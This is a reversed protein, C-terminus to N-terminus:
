EPPRSHKGAPIITAVIERRELKCGAGTAAPSYVRRLLGPNPAWRPKPIAQRDHIRGIIENTYQAHDRMGPRGLCEAVLLVLLAPCAFCPLSRPNGPRLGIEGSSDDINRAKGLTNMADTKMSVAASANACCAL